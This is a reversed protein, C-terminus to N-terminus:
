PAMAARTRRRAPSSLRKSLTRTATASLPRLKSCNLRWDTSRPRRTLAVFCLCTGVALLSRGRSDGEAIARPGRGRHCRPRPRSLRLPASCLHTNCASASRPDRALLRDVSNRSAVPRSQLSAGTPRELAHPRDFLSPPYADAPSRRARDLTASLSRTAFSRVFQEYRPKLSGSQNTRLAQLAAPSSPPLLWFVPIDRANRCTALAPRDGRCQDPRRLFAQPHLNREIESADALDQQKPQGRRWSTPGATGRGTESCCAISRKSVTLRAACPPLCM